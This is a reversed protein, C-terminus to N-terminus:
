IFNAERLAKERRQSIPVHVGNTLVITKKRPKRIVRDIAAKAVWWSRHVQVGPYGELEAVADAMRLLLLADGYSTHVRLYHDEMALCLIDTGLSPPLRDLFRQGPSIVQSVSSPKKFKDGILSVPGVILLTILWVKAYFGLYGILSYNLSALSSVVYELTFGGPYMFMGKLILEWSAVWVLTPLSLAATFVFFALVAHVKRMNLFPFVIRGVIGSVFSAFVINGVWYLFRGLIVPIESTTYPTIMGLLIGALAMLATKQM